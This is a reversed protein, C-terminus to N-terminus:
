EDSRSSQSSELFKEGLVERRSREGFISGSFKGWSSGGLFEGWSSEGSFAGLVRGQSREPHETRSATMTAGNMRRDVAPRQPVTRSLASCHPIARCLAVCRSVARCLAVCRPASRSAANWHTTRQINYVNYTTYTTRQIRQLHLQKNYMGYNHIAFLRIQYASYLAFAVLAIRLAWRSPSSSSSSSSSANDRAQSASAKSQPVPLPRGSRTTVMAVLHKPNPPPLLCELGSPM